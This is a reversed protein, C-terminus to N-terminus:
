RRARGPGEYANRPSPGAASFVAAAIWFDEREQPYFAWWERRPRLFKGEPDIAHFIEPLNKCAMKDMLPQAQRM